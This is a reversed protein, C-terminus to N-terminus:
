GRDARHNTMDPRNHNRLIGELVSGSIARAKDSITHCYQSAGRPDIDGLKTGKKVQIGPRILGRIVGDIAAVVKKGDVDGIIEDRRIQDMISFSANFQGAGPARLVRERTFGAINGPVGTNEAAMGDTIIRGLEHGRNTEIVMHTQQPAKFGPGLGIVLAAEDRTTGLNTKALIADIVIDPHMAACMSWKPDVIVPIHNNEWATRIGSVEDVLVATINEVTHAGTYVAECFSVLRRVAMPQGTEMMFIQRINAMHLRWAVASAMEGGGKIGVILEHIPKKNMTVGIIDM